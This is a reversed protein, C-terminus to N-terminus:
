MQTTQRCPCPGGIFSKRKFYFHPSSFNIPILSPPTSLFTVHPLFFQHLSLSHPNNVGAEVDAKAKSLFSAYVLL